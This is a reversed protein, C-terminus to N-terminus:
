LAPKKTEFMSRVIAPIDKINGVAKKMTKESEEGCVIHFATREDINHGRVYSDWDRWMMFEDGKADLMECLVQGDKNAAPVVGYKALLEAADEPTLNIELEKSGYLYQIGLGDENLWQDVIFVHPEIESTFKIQSM